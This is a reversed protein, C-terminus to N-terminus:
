AVPKKLKWRRHSWLYPAPNSQIDQELEHMFMQTLAVPPLSTPDDTIKKFRIEYRNRGVNAITSYIVVYNYQKAIKEMGTVVATDQHMFNVWFHEKPNPSQDAILVLLTQQDSNDKLHTLLKRKPILWINLRSRTRFMLKEFYPNSLPKYAAKLPIPARRALAGGGWEWNGYHGLVFMVNRGKDIEQQVVDYNNIACHKRLGANSITFSKITEVLTDSLYIYFSRSLKKLEQETKEPFSNRLNKM